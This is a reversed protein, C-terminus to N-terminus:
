GNISEKVETEFIVEETENCVVSVMGGIYDEFYSTKTGNNSEIYKKCYESTAKFGKSDSKCDDNFVVDYTKEVINDIATLIDNKQIENYYGIVIEDGEIKFDRADLNTNVWNLNKKSNEIKFNKMTKREKTPQTETNTHNLPLM